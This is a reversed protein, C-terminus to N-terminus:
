DAAPEPEALATQDCTAQDALADLEARIPSTAPALVFVWLAGDGCATRRAHGVVEIPTADGFTDLLYATLAVRDRDPAASVRIAFPDHIRHRDGDVAILLGQFYATLENALHAADLPAPDDLRWVFTYSWRNAAGAALFDPPFRLEEVGRHALRPAFDLPFPITEHKWGDPVAWTPVPATATATAAAPAPTPTSAPTPAPRAAHGCGTAAVLWASLLAPRPMAAAYVLARAM